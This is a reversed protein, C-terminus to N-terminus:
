NSYGWRLDAPVALTFGALCRLPFQLRVAAWGTKTGDTIRVMQGKEELVTFTSSRDTFNGDSIIEDGSLHGFVASTGKLRASKWTTEQADAPRAFPPLTFLFLMAALTFLRRRITHPRGNANNKMSLNKPIHNRTKNVSPRREVIQICDM